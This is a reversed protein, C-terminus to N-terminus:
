SLHISSGKLLRPAAHQQLSCDLRSKRNTLQERISTYSIRRGATMLRLGAKTGIPTGINHPLSSSIAEEAKVEPFLVQGTKRVQKSTLVREVQQM